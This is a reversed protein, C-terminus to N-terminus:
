MKSGKRIIFDVQLKNERREWLKFYSHIVRLVKGKLYKQKRIHLNMVVSDQRRCLRDKHVFVTEVLNKAM